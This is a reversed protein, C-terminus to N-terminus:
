RDYFFCKEIQFLFFIWKFYFFFGNSISFFIWKFHFFKGIEMHAHINFITDNATLTKIDITTLITSWTRENPIFLYAIYKCQMKLIYM